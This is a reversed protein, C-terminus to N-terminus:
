QTSKCMQAARCMLKGGKSGGKGSLTYKLINLHLDHGVNQTMLMITAQCNLFCFM